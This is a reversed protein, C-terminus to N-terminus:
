SVGGLTPGGHDERGPGLVKEVALELDAQDFLADAGGARIMAAQGGALNIAVLQVISLSEIDEVVRAIDAGFLKCARAQLYLLHVAFWDVSASEVDPPETDAHCPSGSLPDPTYPSPPDVIDM